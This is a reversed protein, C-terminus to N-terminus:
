KLAEKRERRSKVTTLRQHLRIIISKRPIVSNREEDLLYQLQEESLTNIRANLRRWSTAAADAATRDKVKM